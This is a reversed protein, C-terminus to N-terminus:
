GTLHRSAGSMDEVGEKVVKLGAVVDVVARACIAAGRENGPELLSQAAGATSAM